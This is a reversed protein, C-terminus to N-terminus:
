GLPKKVELFQDWTLYSLGEVELRGAHSLVKVSLWLLLLLLSLINNNVKGMAAMIM